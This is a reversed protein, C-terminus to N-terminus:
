LFQEYIKQMSGAVIEWTYREAVLKQGNERLRERLEKNSIIRILQKAIDKPDEPDCILGTEEHKLFDCIGGILPGVIPVGCAMAELFATGLGESKSPRVFVMARRIMEPLQEYEITGKLSIHSELRQTSIFQEAEKRLPGDGVIVLQANPIQDRVITFADLLLLIGNKPVLRSVTIIIPDDSLTPAPTFLNADVGNPIMVVSRAKQSLAYLVLYNSIATVLRARRIIKTRFWKLLPPQASLNKGEQLTVIFPIKPFMWSVLLGGGAAQSAQYAHIATYKYKRILRIATIAMMVPLFIKPLIFSFNSFRGGARFIHINGINEQTRAERNYRGTVIDFDFGALVGAIRQIALESGGILPAFATSLILIRPRM